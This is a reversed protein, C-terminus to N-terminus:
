LGAAAFAKADRERLQRITLEDGNRSVFRDIPLKGDRFLKGKTPGLYDDQFAAPKGRLWEGFTTDEPIQGDMSARTSAPLDDADIGLDRWSKLVPTRVSRCNWHIPPMPGEGLKFLKGDLSACRLTTRGDITATYREGKILDTNAQYFRNRTVSAVHQTATRVVAQANRRDIEIIGDEYGRARTGRIRRVMQDITQGEVYGIRLADRIRTMKDAEISAAWERMLRGQMPRALAASYTQEVNIRAFSVEAPLTAAFLQAQHDAEYGALDRMEVELGSRLAAYARANLERASQLLADLREVTFQSAPLRELAEILARFLDADVRNLLAILRKVVGNSYRATDMAHQTAADALRENATQAM